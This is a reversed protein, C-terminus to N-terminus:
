TALSPREGFIATGVRVMTAGCEIAVHMDHSMGMSLQPLRQIGGHEDRLERLREFHPRAANPDPDFPPMTMLGRLSLGPEADVAELISALEDPHCGSKSTEGSVNVEVLVSLPSLSMPPLTEVPAQVRNRVAEPSEQGTRTRQRVRKGLETVLKESSVTHITHVLQAIFRAKNTQLHGILHWRIDAYQSLQEAKSVLEQVYNEGFDRQGVAYAALISDVSHKKSVAILKIKQVDQGASRAASALRERQEALREAIETSV